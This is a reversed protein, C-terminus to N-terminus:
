LDLTIIHAYKVEGHKLHDMDVHIGDTGPFTVRRCILVIASLLSCRRQANRDGATGHQVAIQLKRESPKPFPTPIAELIECTSEFIFVLHVTFHNEKM